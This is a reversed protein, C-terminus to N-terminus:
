GLQRKINNGEKNIEPLAFIDELAPVIAGLTGSKKQDLKSYQLKLNEAILPHLYSKTMKSLENILQKGGNQLSGGVIVHQFEFLMLLDSLAVALYELAEGVVEQCLPDEKEFGKLILESTVRDAKEIFCKKGAKIGAKVNEVMAKESAYAELCGQGGCICPKGNKEVNTHGIVGANGYIGSYLEGDIVLGCGIGQHVGLFAFNSKGSGFWGEALAYVDTQNNIYVPVKFEDTFIERVPIDSWDEIRPNTISVGTKKDFFGIIGIGIATVKESMYEETESVLKDVITGSSKNLDLKIQKFSQVQGKINTLVFKAHPFDLEIGILIRDKSNLSYLRPPRGGSSEGTGKNMVLKEKKLEQICNLVTPKSIDTNKVIEPISVKDHERIYNLVIGKNLDPLIKHKQRNINNLDM